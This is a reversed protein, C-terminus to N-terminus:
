QCVTPETTLSFWFIQEPRLPHTRHVQISRLKKLSSSIRDPDGSKEDLELCLRAYNAAKSFDSLRFYSIALITLCDARSSEDQEPFEPLAKGAYAAATTYDQSANFWEGAWYWVEGKLQSLPTGEPFPEQEEPVAHRYVPFPDPLDQSVLRYKRGRM